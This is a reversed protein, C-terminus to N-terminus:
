LIELLTETDLGKSPSFSMKQSWITGVKQHLLYVLLIDSQGELSSDAVKNLLLDGSLTQIPSFILVNQILAPREGAGGGKGM